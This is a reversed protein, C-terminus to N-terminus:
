KKSLSRLREIAARVNRIATRLERLRKLEIVLDPRQIEAIRLQKIIQKQKEVNEKFDFKNNVM